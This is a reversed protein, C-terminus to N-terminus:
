DAMSSVLWIVLAILLMGLVLRPFLYLVPILWIPSLWRYITLLVVLVALLVTALFFM